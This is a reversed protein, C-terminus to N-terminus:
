DAFSSFRCSPHDFTNAKFISPLTHAKQSISALFLSTTTWSTTPVAGFGSPHKKYVKSWWAFIWNAFWVCPSFAEALPHDVNLTFDTFKQLVADLVLLSRYNPKPEFSRDHSNLLHLTLFSRTKVKFLTPHPPQALTFPHYDFPLTSYLGLHGGSWTSM